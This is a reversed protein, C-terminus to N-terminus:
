GIIKRVSSRYAEPSIGKHQKFLKCFHSSSFGAVERAIELVTKDTTALLSCAERIRRMTLYESITIGTHQKFLRSVHYPSLHLAEAMLDLRFPDRFRKDLWETMQEIHLTVRPNMFEMPPIVHLQLHRILQVMFLALEEATCEGRSIVKNFDSLLNPIRPDDAPLAFIQQPLSGKWLTRFFRQLTPYPSLCTEAIMPDFTLNTRIYAHEPLPPVEVRHLQFPQFWVLTGPVLKYKLSELVIEGFGEFIYLM